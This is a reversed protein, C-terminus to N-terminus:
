GIGAWFNRDVIGNAKMGCDRQFKRVATKTKSGFRGTIDGKYYGMEKLRTQLYEIHKGKAGQKVIRYEENPVAMGPMMGGPMGPMMGGPMGPFAPMGGPAGGLPFGPEPLPIGAGPPMCGPFGPPMGPPFLPLEPPYGPQFEPPFGPPLSFGGGPINGETIEIVQGPYILDPDVIEPNAEVLDAFAIGHRQAIKYMTDGTVVTYKM